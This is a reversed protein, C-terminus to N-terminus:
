RFTDEVKVGCSVAQEQTFFPSYQGRVLVRLMDDIIHRHDDRSM